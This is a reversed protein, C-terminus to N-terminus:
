KAFASQIFQEATTQRLNFSRATQEMPIIVDSMEMAGLLGIIHEPLPPAEGAQAVQVPITRGLLKETIGIIDRWSIADPGGLPIKKNLAAPHEVAATAVAAVDTAAIFSHKREGPGLLLVPRNERVASGVVMPIWVDMFIHPALITHTLGRDRLYEETRAKAQLFPVPHAVDAGYASIFVFQRVGAKCAAGILNRNGKLDVSETNDDGGRRASNATTVVVEAEQCAAQLSNPDKLDGFVPKAGAQVLQAYDSSARVLIQVAQGQRLLNRAILGGLYGTAGVVLIM